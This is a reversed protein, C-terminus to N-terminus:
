TSLPPLADPRAPPLAERASAARASRRVLWRRCPQEVGAFLGWAAALSLAVMLPLFAVPVAGDPWGGLTEILKFGVIQVLGHVMYLSYSIRGLFCLPAPATPRWLLLGGLLGTFALIFLIDQGAALSAGMGALGAGTLAAGLPRNPQTGLSRALGMGLIFSPVIRLIGFDAALRTLSMAGDPRRLSEPLAAEVGVCYILFVSLAMPLAARPSLRFFALALLPFLAYAFAEASISWSPFNLGGTPLVGWAHMLGLHLLVMSPVDYDLARGQFGLLPGGLLIALALVLTVLHVPYLRAFRKLAFERLRFRGEAITGQYVLMLVAGSLVFFMDVALYGKALILPTGSTALPPWFHFLVIWLAAIGRLATWSTIEGPAM